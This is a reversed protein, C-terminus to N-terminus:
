SFSGHPYRWMSDWQLGLFVCVCLCRFLWLETFDLLWGVCFCLLCDLFRGVFIANRFGTITV